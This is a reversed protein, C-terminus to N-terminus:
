RGADRSPPPDATRAIRIAILKWTGDLRRDEILGIGPAYTRVARFAGAPVSEAHVRIVGWLQGIPTMVGGKDARVRYEVRNFLWRQGDALPARLLPARFATMTDAWGADLIRDPLREMVFVDDQAPTVPTETAPATRRVYCFRGRQRQIRDTRRFATTAGDVSKWVYEYVWGSHCPWYDLVSPASHLALAVAFGTLTLVVPARGGASLASAVGAEARRGCKM